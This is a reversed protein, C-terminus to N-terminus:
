NAEVVDFDEPNYDRPNYENCEKVFKWWYNTRAKEPSVTWTDGVHNGNLLVYYHKKPERNGIPQM